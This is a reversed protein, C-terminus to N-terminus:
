LLFGPLGTVYFFNMCMEDATGEGYRVARPGPNDWTCSIEIEDENKVDFPTQYEYSQQWHFDWDPVDVLCENTTANRVTIRRGLEHMHPTVGYVKLSPLLFAPVIQSLSFTGSATYGTSSPPINFNSITIPFVLAPDRVPSTAYQLRVQTHDQQPAGGALNYHVQMVLVHGSRIRVGTNEPYRTATSGPVWGGVMRLNLSQTGPGGYCTWGLGPESADLARAEGEPLAFLIVHHVQKPTGPVVDFGIIDKQASLAPPVVFCRYDDSVDRNPVYPAEPSVTADVWELGLRTMSPPPADARDGERAGRESWQVITQIHADSLRRSHKLPRCADDPKWPPMRRMAVADAMALHMASASEYSDLSFPAIGGPLHCGQCNEQVIPLVDRYWSPGSDVEVNVYPGTDAPANEGKPVGCAGLALAVVVM